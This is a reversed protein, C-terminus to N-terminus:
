VALLVFYRGPCTGHLDQYIWRWQRFGLVRRHEWPCSAFSACDGWTIAAGRQMDGV